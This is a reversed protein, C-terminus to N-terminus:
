RRAARVIVATGLLIAGVMGGFALLGVPTVEVESAVSFREGFQVRSAARQRAAFPAAAPASPVLSNDSM